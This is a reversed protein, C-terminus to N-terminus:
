QNIYLAVFISITLAISATLTNKFRFHIIKLKVSGLFLLVYWVIVSATSVLCNWIPQMGLTSIKWQALCLLSFVIGTIVFLHRGYYNSKYASTFFLLGSIHFYIQIFYISLIPISDSYQPFISVLLPRAILLILSAIVSVTLGVISTITFVKNLKGKFDHAIYPLLVLSSVALVQTIYQYISYAFGYEAFILNSHFWKIFFRDISFMFRVIQSSAMLFFGGSIGIIISKKISSLFVDEGKFKVKQNHWAWIFVIIPGITWAFIVTIYGCDKLKLFWFLLIIVVVVGRRFVRLNGSKKFDKVSQALFDIYILNNEAVIYVISLIPIIIINETSFSDLLVITGICVSAICLTTILQAYFFNRYEKISLGNQKSSKIHAYDIIGSHFLGAFIIYLLFTQFAAYEEKNILIPILFTLIFGILLTIVNKLFFIFIKHLTSRLEYSNKRWRQNLERFIISITM